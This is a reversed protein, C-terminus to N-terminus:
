GPVKWIASQYNNWKIGRRKVYKKEVQTAAKHADPLPLNKKKILYQEVAEHVLLPNTNRKSVDADIVITHDNSKHAWNGIRPLHKIKKYPYIIKKNDFGISIKKPTVHINSIRKQKYSKVLEKRKALSLPPHPKYRRHGPNIISRRGSRYRRLHQCQKM